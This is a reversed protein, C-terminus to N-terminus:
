PLARMHEADHRCKEGRAERQIAVYLDPSPDHAAPLPLQALPEGRAIDEVEATVAQRALAFLGLQSAPKSLQPARSAVSAGGVSEARRMSPLHGSFAVSTASAMCPATASGSWPSGRYGSMRSGCVPTRYERIASGGLRLRPASPVDVQCSCTASLVARGSFGTPSHRTDAYCTWVGARPCDM